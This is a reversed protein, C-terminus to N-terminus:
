RGLAPLDPQLSLLFMKSEPRDLREATEQADGVLGTQQVLLTLWHNAPNGKAM